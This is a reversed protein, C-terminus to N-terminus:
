PSWILLEFVIILEGHSPRIGPPHPHREFHGFRFGLFLNQPMTPAFQNPPPAPYIDPSCQPSNPIISWMKGWDALLFSFSVDNFLCNCITSQQASSMSKYSFVTHVDIIYRIIQNCFFLLFRCIYRSHAQIPHLCTFIYM